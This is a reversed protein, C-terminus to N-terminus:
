NSGILNNVRIRLAEVSAVTAPNPVSPSGAVSSIVSFSSLLNLLEQLIAHESELTNSRSYKGKISHTLNGGDDLEITPKGKPAKGNPFIGVMCFCDTLNFRSLDDNEVVEGGTSELWNGLGVESFYLICPTKPPIPFKLSFDATQTKVVPVEEITPIELNIIKGAVKKSMKIAPTVKAWEKDPHYEEIIAPICTHIDSLRSDLFQQLTDVINNSSM